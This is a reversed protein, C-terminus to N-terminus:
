IAMRWRTVGSNIPDHLKTDIVNAVSPGDASSWYDDLYNLEM